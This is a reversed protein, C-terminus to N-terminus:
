INCVSKKTPSRCQMQMERWICSVELITLCQVVERPVDRLDLIQFNWHSPFWTDGTSTKAELNSFKLLFFLRRLLDCLLVVRLLDIYITYRTKQVLVNKKWPKLIELCKTDLILMWPNGDRLRESTQCGHLQGFFMLCFLQSSGPKFPHFM